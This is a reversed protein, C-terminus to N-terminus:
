SKNRVTIYLFMIDVNALTDTCFYPLLKLFFRRSIYYYRTYQSQPTTNCAAGAYLEQVFNRNIIAWLKM